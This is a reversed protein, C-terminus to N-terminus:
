IIRKDSLLGYVYSSGQIKKSIESPSSISWIGITKIIDNKPIKRNVEVKNRIPIIHENEIRYFFPLGTVTYFEEGEHSIIKEWIIRINM